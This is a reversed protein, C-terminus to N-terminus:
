ALAGKVREVMRRHGAEAEARTSYREQEDGLLGGFVMTEFLVPPGAGFSHDIGLFVTSVRVDGITEDAIHRNATEYWRGWEMLDTCLVPEGSDDLKYNGSM